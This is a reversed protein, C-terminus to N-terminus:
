FGLSDWKGKKQTQNEKKDESSRKTGKKSDDDEESTEKNDDKMVVDEDDDDDSIDIIEEVNNVVQVDLASETGLESGEQQEWINFFDIAFYFDLGTIKKACGKDEKLSHGVWLAENPHVGTGLAAWIM